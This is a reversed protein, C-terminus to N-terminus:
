CIWEQTEGERACQVNRYASGKELYKDKRDSLLHQGGKSILEHKQFHPATDEAGVIARERVIMKDMVM